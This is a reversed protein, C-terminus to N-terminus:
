LYIKGKEPTGVKIMIFWFGGYLLDVNQKFNDTTTVYNWEMM